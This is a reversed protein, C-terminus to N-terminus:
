RGARQALGQYRDRQHAARRRIRCLDLTRRRTHEVTGIARTLEKVFRSEDVNTGPFSATFTHVWTGEGQRSLAEAIGSSDLGGSLACGVLVDSRRHLAVSREFEPRIAEVAEEDRHISVAVREPNWYSVADLLDGSRLDVEVYNGPALPVVGDFFTREPIEYGTTLFEDAQVHDLRARFGPIQCLQKIESVFARNRGQAWTYLPKIGFRDRSAFLRESDADLL